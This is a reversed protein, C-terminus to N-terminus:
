INVKIQTYSHKSQVTCICFAHVRHGCLGSFSVSDGLFPIIPSQSTGHLLYFDFRMERCSCCTHQVASGLKWSRFQISRHSCLYVCSEQSNIQPNLCPPFACTHMHGEHLFNSEEEPLTDKRPGVRSPSTFPVKFFFSLGDEWRILMTILPSLSPVALHVECDVFKKEKVVKCSKCRDLFLFILFESEEEKSQHYLRLSLGLFCQRWPLFSCLVPWNSLKCSEFRPASNRHKDYDVQSSFARGRGESDWGTKLVWSSCKGKVRM